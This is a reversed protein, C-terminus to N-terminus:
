GSHAGSLVRDTRHDLERRDEEMPKVVTLGDELRVKEGCFLIDAKAAQNGSIASVTLSTEDRTVTVSLIYGAYQLKFSYRRWGEPIRPSLRLTEGDSRLGGFGYVINNWAGAISTTHLGERTNRNYNDLDLRTAFGFFRCAQDMRGLQAALISHVSPSLSSEHICRPEYYDFNAALQSDTFDRNYLLMFMLVDPQKIMDNRYVRDYSWNGYLPFEEPPIQSIDLHPMRFFGQHQEFLQMAADYPICMDDAIQAWHSLEEESLDTKNLLNKYPQEAGNAMSSLIEITFRLTKQAMFNTYCNNSVMMQFEDPGMVGYFGYEGTVPDYGGRSALMRCVEILVEAGYKYVFEADGTVRLYHWFAYAVSTSAQLQCSAHQFMDCCELGSITAVPYYAGECDLERARVKAQPLTDYRFKLISKVAEPNCFLYFPLCYVETDWFTNGNYFEGTMGKAGIVAGQRATHLTQHMQFVCFRIGQQNEDDGDIEINSFQWCKAWWDASAAKEEAYHLSALLLKAESCATDFDAASEKVLAVLKEIEIIEGPELSLHYVTAAQKARNDAIKFSPSAGSMKSCVFLKQHTGTTEGLLECGHTDAAANTAQWYNRKMSTHQRSFDLGTTLKIDAHGKIAEMRIKQGGIEPHVMSTFREFMLKVSTKEDVHWVFERNLIGTKLDLVRRFDSFRATALDLERGNCILRTYLWDVTNVMFEAFKVISKYGSSNTPRREFIGNVYSGQLTNGSYGEDFYGRLGIHENALSFISESVEGYEPDFGLEEVQWPLVSFYRDAFKRLCTM